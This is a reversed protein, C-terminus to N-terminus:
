RAKRHNKQDFYIVIPHLGVSLLERIGDVHVDDMM